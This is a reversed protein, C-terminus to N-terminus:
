GSVAGVLDRLWAGVVAGVAQLDTRLSHDAAVQV